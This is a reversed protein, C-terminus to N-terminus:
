VAYGAAEVARALADPDTRAPDYAVTARETALNVAAEAVGDVRGLAREVRGACSACTMGRVPLAVRRTHPGEPSPTPADMGLRLSRRRRHGPPETSALTRAM